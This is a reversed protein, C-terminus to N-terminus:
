AGAILIIFLFVPQSVHNPRYSLQMHQLSKHPARKRMGHMLPRSRTVAATCHLLDNLFRQLLQM